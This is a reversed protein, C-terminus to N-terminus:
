DEFLDGNLPDVHFEEPSIFGSSVNQCLNKELFYEFSGDEKIAKVMEKEKETMQSVGLYEKGNYSGEALKDWPITVSEKVEARPKNGRTKLAVPEEKKEKAESNEKSASSQEENKKNEEWEKDEKEVLEELEKYFNTNFDIDVKKIFTELRSKIKHYSTINFLKDFDYKDYNKEEETLPGEVIYKLLNEDIKAREEIGHRVTYWPAETKKQIVVDYNEWNGHFEAVEDWIVNYTTMPVGPEYWANQNDRISAKKSLIKTKKHEAHFDPDHRDLVNMLIYQTPKWGKEYKNERNNTSVRLFCEPHIDKNTYIKEFDKGSGKVSYAMVKNFIKWLLWDKNDNLAPWICRFKKGDDGVIFSIFVRKPDSPKERVLLPAGLVRVVRGQETSLACYNIEERPGYNQFDSSKRKEEKQKEERRKQKAKEFLEEKTMSM